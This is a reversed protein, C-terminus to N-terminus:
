SEYNLPGFGVLGSKNYIKIWDNITGINMGLIYAIDKNYHQERFM